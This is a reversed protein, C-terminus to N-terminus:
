SANEKARAARSRYSLVYLGAAVAATILISSWEAM